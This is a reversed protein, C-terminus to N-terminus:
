ELVDDIIVCTAVTGRLQPAPKNRNRQELWGGVNNEWRTGTLDHMLYKHAWVSRTSSTNILHNLQNIQLELKAIEVAAEDCVRKEERLCKLLQTDSKWMLGSM